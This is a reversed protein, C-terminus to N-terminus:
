EGTVTPICRGTMYMYQIHHVHVCYMHKCTTARYSVIALLMGLAKKSQEPMNKSGGRARGCWIVTHVDCLTEAEIYLCRTYICLSVKKSHREVQKCVLPVCVCVSDLTQSNTEKQECFQTGVCM